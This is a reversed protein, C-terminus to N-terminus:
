FDEDESLMEDYNLKIAEYIFLASMLYPIIVREGLKTPHPLLGGRIKMSVYTYALASLENTDNQLESSVVAFPIFDEYLKKALTLATPDSCSTTFICVRDVDSVITEPTWQALNTFKESGYLAKMEIAQLEDFCAFYVKGQGVSAQALLRATEEIAEEESQIIRQFLGSMQTSLIKSM